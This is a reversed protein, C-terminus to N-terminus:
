HCLHASGGEVSSRTGGGGAPERLEPGDGSWLRAFSQLTAPLVMAPPGRDDDNVITATFDALPALAAFSLPVQEFAEDLVKQPVTRGTVLARRTAREHIRERSATVLLIAIRYHPFTARIRAFCSTYWAANRLSGDVLVNYNRKLAEQELLEAIYGSERQTLTGALAANGRVLEPMEPLLSKIRDTDVVIFTDLPFAGEKALWKM